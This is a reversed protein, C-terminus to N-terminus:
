STFLKFQLTIGMILEPFEKNALGIDEPINLNISSFFANGKGLGDTM